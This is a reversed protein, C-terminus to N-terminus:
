RCIGVIADVVDALSRDSPQVKGYIRLGEIATVILRALSRVDHLKSIEGSAQACILSEAFLDEMAQFMMRVRATVEPDSPTLEAAANAILCGRARDEISHDSAVYILCQRIGDLVSDNRHLCESIGMLSNQTYRDLAALFLEKKGGFAAHLSGPLVGTSTALDKMSTASYGHSWFTDIAKQITRDTDFERHRAMIQLRKAHVLGM